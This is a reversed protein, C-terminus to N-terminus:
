WLDHVRREARRNEEEHILMGIVVFSIFGAGLFAFALRPGVWPLTPFFLLMGGFLLLLSSQVLLLAVKLNPM